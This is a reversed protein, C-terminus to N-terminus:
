AVSTASMPPQRDLVGTVWEVFVSCQGSARVADGDQALAALLEGQDADALGPALSGWVAVQHEPALSLVPAAKLCSRLLSGIAATDGKVTGLLPLTNRPKFWSVLRLLRRTQSILSANGVTLAGKGAWETILDLRPGDGDAIRCFRLFAPLIVALARTLIVARQEPSPVQAVVRRVDAARRDWDPRVTASWARRVRTGRWVRQVRTASDAQVRARERELRQKKEKALFDVKSTTKSKGGLRVERATPDLFM